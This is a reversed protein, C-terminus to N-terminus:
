IAPLAALISLQLHEINLSALGQGDKAFRVSKLSPNKRHITLSELHYIKFPGTKATLVPSAM